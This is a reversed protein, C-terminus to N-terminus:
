LMGTERSRGCSIFVRGLKAGVSMGVTGSMRIYARAWWKAALWGACWRGVCTMCPRAFVSARVVVGSPVDPSVRLSGSFPIPAVELGLRGRRQEVGAAVPSYVGGNLPSVPDGLFVFSRVAEEVYLDGPYTALVDRVALYFSEAVSRHPAEYVREVIKAAVIANTHQGSGNTPGVFACPGGTPEEVLLSEVVPTGVGPWCPTMDYDGSAFGAADCTAALMVPNCDDRLYSTILPFSAGATKSVDFTATKWRNPEWQVLKTSDSTM